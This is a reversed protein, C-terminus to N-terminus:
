EVELIWESFNNFFESIFLRFKMNISIFLWTIVQCQCPLLGNCSNLLFYISLPGLYIMATFHLLKTGLDDSRLFVNGHPHKPCGYKLRCMHQREAGYLRHFNEAPRIFFSHCCFFCAHPPIELLQLWPQPWSWLILEVGVGVGPTEVGVGVGAFRWFILELELEPLKLELELEPLDGSYWSWSWSRLKWSWSWNWSWLIWSWNWSWSRLKLDLGLEM